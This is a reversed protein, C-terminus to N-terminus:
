RVVTMRRSEAFDGAQMEYLYVGSRMSSVDVQIEHFGLPMSRDLVAAWTRSRPM